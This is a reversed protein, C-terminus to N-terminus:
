ICSLIRIIHLSKAVFYGMHYPTAKISLSRREKLFSNPNISFM